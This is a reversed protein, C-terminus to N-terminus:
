QKRTTALKYIKFEADMRIKREFNLLANGSIDFKGYYLAGNNLYYAFLPITKDLSSKAIFISRKDIFVDDEFETPILYFGRTENISAGQFRPYLYFEYYDETRDVQILIHETSFELKKDGMHLKIPSKGPAISPFAVLFQVESGAPIKAAPNYYISKLVLMHDPTAGNLLLLDELDFPIHLENGIELTLNFPVVSEKGGKNQITILFNNTARMDLHFPNGKVPLAALPLDDRGSASEDLIMTKLRNYGFRDIALTDLLENLGALLYQQDNLQTGERSKRRIFYERMSQEYVYYEPFGNRQLISEVMENTRIPDIHKVKVELEGFNISTPVSEAVELKNYVGVERITTYRIKDQASAASLAFLGIILAIEAICNQRQFSM